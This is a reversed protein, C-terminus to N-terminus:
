FEKKKPQFKPAFKEEVPKEKVPAEEVPKEETFITKIDRQVDERFNAKNTLDCASLLSKAEDKSILGLNFKVCTDFANKCSESHFTEMWAPLHRYDSCDPCYSYVEGCNYCKRAHRM